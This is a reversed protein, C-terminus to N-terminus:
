WGAFWVGLGYVVGIPPFLCVLLMLAQARALCTLIAQIYAAVLVLGVCTLMLYGLGRFLAAVGDAVAELVGPIARLLRELAVVPASLAAEVRRGLASRPGSRVSEFGWGVLAAGGAGLAACVAGPQWAWAGRAPAVGISAYVWVALGATAGVTIWPRVNM